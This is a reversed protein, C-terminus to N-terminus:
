TCLFDEARPLLSPPRLSSRLFESLSSTAIYRRYAFRTVIYYFLMLICCHRSIPSYMVFGRGRLQGYPGRDDSSEHPVGRYLIDSTFTLDYFLSSAGLEEETVEDTTKKKKGKVWPDDDESRGKRKRDREERIAEALKREDLKLEGEGLRKKSFLEEAKKKREDRDESVASSSPQAKSSSALVSAPVPPPPMSSSSSSALLQKASSSETASIGASGTCYSLHVTSHCCAFGWQGTTTDYWSGWVSTHNNILVAFVLDTEAYIHYGFLLCVM